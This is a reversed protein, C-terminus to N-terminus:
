FTRSYYGHAYDPVWSFKWLVWIYPADRPEGQSLVAKKYFRNYITKTYNQCYPVAYGIIKHAALFNSV